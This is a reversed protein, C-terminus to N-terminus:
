KLCAIAGIKFIPAIRQETQNQKPDRKNLHGDAANAGVAGSLVEPHPPESRWRLCQQRTSGRRGNAQLVGRRGLGAHGM